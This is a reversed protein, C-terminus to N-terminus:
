FAAGLVSRLETGWNQVIRLERPKWLSKLMIFRGQSDVDYAAANSGPDREFHGEFVQRPEGLSDREIACLMMREGERFFLGEASWVPETAGTTTIQITDAQRDLRTVHIEDRGSVDSVYAIWRGDRSISPSRENASTAAVPVISEGVRYVLVDRGRAPEIEYLALMGQAGDVPMSRRSWSAPNRAATARASFLAEPPKMGPMAVVYIQQLGERNSGFTLRRDDMWAPSQNDGGAITFVASQPRATEFVRIERTMVGSRFVVAIRRGDPSLRPTQLVGPPASLPSVRGNREVQVLRSHADEPSSRLWVLTGTRSIAFGSRGLVGFGTSTQVGRALAVPVGVTSRDDVDFRVAMLNGLYSYVLHGTEVYQAQGVIPVRLRIRKGAPVMVEIRADRGRLSVTFVISGDSLAHPWGHELEGENANLQTLPLATGGSAPVEMLGQGGLPAFVIRGDGTWAAGASDPPADAVRQPAGGGFAVRWMSGRAFYGVQAGDPSFFPSSGGATDGLEREAGTEDSVTRVVIRRLGDPPGEASYALRQGDPSVAFSSLTRTDPLPLTFRRAAPPSPQVACAAFWVAMLAVGTVVPNLGAPVATVGARSIM